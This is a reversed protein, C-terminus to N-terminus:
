RFLDIHDRVFQAFAIPARGTVQEIDSAVEATYGGRQIQALEVVGEIHWETAGAGRMAQRLDDDSIPVYRVPKGTVTTLIAAVDANALPEPGTLDYAKGAHGDQTLTAVAVAAIDRVDVFSVQGEAAPDYFVGQTKITRQALFNQM